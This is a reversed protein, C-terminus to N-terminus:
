ALAPTKDGAKETLYMVFRNNKDVLIAKPEVPKDSLEFGMVIIEEGQKILHAAAGNVCMVGSGREGRITYTELRAGSTNSVVLVKEGIDLGCQDLLDEDITISGVYEVNAETVTAKHIKSRLYWRM